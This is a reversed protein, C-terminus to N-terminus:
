VEGMVDKLEISHGCEISRLVGEIMAVNLLGEVGTAAPQIDDAVCDVFHRMPEYIWGDLKGFINREGVPLWPYSLKTQGTIEVGTFDQDFEIRGSSGYLGMQTDIVSPAGNPVIWSSEFTAFAGNDYLVQAQIADFTDVGKASLVGRSGFAHVRVPKADFFWTMLDMTHPLLFWQPGSRAAWPLWELAVQIANSLRIYGMVPKGFNGDMVAHKIVGYSPNWRNQFDVMLKVGARRAEEVLIKSERVSTTLPKEILVHKGARILKLAVDFHAFDPTAISVAAIRSDAALEEVSATYHCGYSIGYEKARDENADCVAVLKSRHYDSYVLAHNQGWIGLGVVAMGVQNNM